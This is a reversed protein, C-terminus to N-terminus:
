THSFTRLSASIGWRAQLRCRSYHAIARRTPEIGEPLSCGFLRHTLYLWDNLIERKGDSELLGRITRWDIDRGFAHHMLALEHISRLPLTGCRHANDVFASHLIVHLIRHTQSPVSMKAGRERFAQAEKRTIYSIHDVDERTLRTPLLRGTRVPSLVDRHIEITAYEGPRFLPTLHHFQAFDFDMEKQRYGSAQLLNWCEEANEHPVLVDLDAMVRSGPDDYTKAFLSAAGKFLVPKVDISNLTCIADIVQERLHQNRSANLRHIERLYDRVESPLSDALGRDRLATWLAPSVLNYDAVGLVTKWCLKEESIERYIVDTGEPTRQVSLCAVIFDFAALRKNMDYDNEGALPKTVGKLM